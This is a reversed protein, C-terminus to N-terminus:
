TREGLQPRYRAYSNKGSNKAAYMAFDAARLIADSDKGDIPYASIGISASVTVDQRGIDIPRCIESLLRRAFNDATDAGQHRELIMAFEDGGLRFVMGPAADQKMREAVVRILDDGAGHGFTDNVMKLNDLDILM